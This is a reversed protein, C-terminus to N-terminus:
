STRVNRALMVERTLERIEQHLIRIENNHTRAVEFNEKTCDSYIDAARNISKVIDQVARNDVVAGAVEVNTQPSPASRFGAKGVIGLITLALGGAIYQVWEPLATVDM